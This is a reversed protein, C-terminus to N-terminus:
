GEESAEDGEEKDAEGSNGASGEHILVFERSSFGFKLIDKELLQIYRSDDIRTGNLYTGNTSGLDMVYAKNVTKTDGVEEDPKHVNRFQIVAHQGSCSPHDLPIDIVKRNRGLLFCSKLYLKYPPLAEEGKFPYLRWKIRPRAGNDPELYKLEVGKKTKIDKV